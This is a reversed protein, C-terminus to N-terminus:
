IDDNEEAILINFANRTFGDRVYESGYKSNNEHDNMFNVYLGSPM